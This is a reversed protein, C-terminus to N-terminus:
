FELVNDAVCLFCTNDCNLVQGFLLKLNLRFLSNETVFYVFKFAHKDETKLSFKHLLNCIKGEFISWKRSHPINGSTLDQISQKTLSHSTYRIAVYQLKKVFGTMGLLNQFIQMLYKFTVFWFGTNKPSHSATNNNFKFPVLMESSSLM